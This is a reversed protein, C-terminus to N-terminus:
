TLQGTVEADIQRTTLKHYHSSLVMQSEIMKQLFGSTM